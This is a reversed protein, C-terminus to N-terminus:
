STTNNVFLTLQQGPKILTRTSLGNWERVEAVTVKFQRAIKWLSDGNQITYNISHKKSSTNDTWIVLKQGIHLTDGPAKTNWSTLRHVEVDYHNAIDWWTDGQKVIHVKKSTGKPKKAQQAHARQSSTLSYSEPKVSAVPILLNKGARLFNTDLSNATKIIDVTTNYKRAIVGLSEGTQIKHRKWKVRESQPLSLLAAKFNDAKNLPLVLHHPGEPPTAWQNFAPNLQYLDDLSMDALKAAIALDIQSGVEVRTLYPKNDIPSLTINYKEPQKILAAVAILKPVYASTEKPLSLSWFDTKKGAKLNRKIARGVTGEGCNYAALALEWDGFDNHLKQLYNIAADTSDIIDRRGDYWWNQELGYVKGTGPIFQWLGSAKGTSYAFPQFGSEVVPLLAIELPMNRKELESVIHHLYPRAREVVREVYEPHKVFWELHKKASPHLKAQSLGYGQRLHQWLDLAPQNLAASPLDLETSVEPLTNELAEQPSGYAHQWQSKRTPSSPKKSLTKQTAQQTNDPKTFSNNCGVLTSLVVLTTLIKILKPETM